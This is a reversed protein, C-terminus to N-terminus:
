CPPSRRGADAKAATQSDAWACAALIAAYGCLGHAAGVVFGASDGHIWEAVHREKMLGKLDVERLRGVDEFPLAGARRGWEVLLEECPDLGAPLGRGQTDQFCVIQLQVPPLEGANESCGVPM